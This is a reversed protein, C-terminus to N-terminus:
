RLLKFSVVVTVYFLRKGNLLCIKYISIIYFRIMKEREEQIRREGEVPDVIGSKNRVNNDGYYGPLFMCIKKESLGDHFYNFGYAEPKEFVQAADLSGGEMDGGTGQAIAFGYVESGDKWLFESNSYALKFNNFMGIEEFCVEVADLGNAATPNNKFNRVHINGGFNHWIFGSKFGGDTEDKYEYGYTLGLNNGKIDNFPLFFETNVLGLLHDKAMNYIIQGKDDHGVAIVTNQKHFLSQSVQRWSGYYSKGARRGTIYLLNRKNFKARAIEQDLIWELDRLEPPGERKKKTTVNGRSDEEVIRITGFNIYSYLDGSMFKGGLSIGYKCYLFQEDWM